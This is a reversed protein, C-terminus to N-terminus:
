LSLWHIISNILRGRYILPTNKSKGIRAKQKKTSEALPPTIGSRITSKIGKVLLFGLGHLGTKKSVLGSLIRSAVKDLALQYKMLNKDITSAIFSRKPPCGNKWGVRKGGKEHYYAISALSSKGVGQGRIGISVSNTKHLVNKKIKKWGRDKDKVSM